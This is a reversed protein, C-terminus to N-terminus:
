QLCSHSLYICFIVDKSHPIAPKYSRAKLATKCDNLFCDVNFVDLNSVAIKKVPLHLQLHSM